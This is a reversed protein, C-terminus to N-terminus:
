ETRAEKIWGIGAPKRMIAPLGPADVTVWPGVFNLQRSTLVPRPGVVDLMGVSQAAPFMSQIVTMKGCHQSPILM